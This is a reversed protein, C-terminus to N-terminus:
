ETSLRALWLPYSMSAELTLVEAIDGLSEHAAMVTLTDQTQGPAGFAELCISWWRAEPALGSSPVTLKALELQCGAGDIFQGVPVEDVQEGDIAYLRLIRRKIVSIWTDEGELWADNGGDLGHSWKVWSEEYGRVGNGYQAPERQSTQAKVEFRGERVKVGVTTCGPLLLYEDTRPEEQRGLQSATFWGVSAPDPEGEFFWRIESSYFVDVETKSRIINQWEHTPLLAYQWSHVFQANIGM